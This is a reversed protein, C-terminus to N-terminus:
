SERTLSEITKRYAPFQAMLKKRSGHEYDEYEFGPAVTNGILAYKGGPKLRAGQWIGKPVVVQPRMGEFLTGGIFIRKGKMGPGLQLMELPDGIYFHFVEDSKVRHMLSVSEPTFLYYIATSFCRGSGYRRPLSNAQISETSRYTEVFYGGEKPHPKLKLVRVLRKIEQDASHNKRAM